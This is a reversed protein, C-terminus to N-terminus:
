FFVSGIRKKEFTSTVNVAVLLLEHLDIKKNEAELLKVPAAPFQNKFRKKQPKRSKSKQKQM